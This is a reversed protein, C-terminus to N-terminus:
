PKDREEQDPLRKMSGVPTQLRSTIVNVLRMLFEQRKNNDWDRYPSKGSRSYLERMHFAKVNESALVANWEDNFALWDACTARLGGIAFAKVAPDTPHGSEDFYVWFAV